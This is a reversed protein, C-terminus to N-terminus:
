KWRLDETLRNALICREIEALRTYTTFDDETLEADVFAASLEEVGSRVNWEPAFAPLKSAIKSFDVRYSRTDPGAADPIVLDASPHVEGVIAAIGRVQYNEASIGVNFAEDHVVERPAELAALFAGCVDQVHVQPRWPTGDSTLVIRNTAVAWATLNNVVIDLRLAPSVGYVTANRMSTPSFGDDALTHLDREVLVKAKGYPTVPAFPATEDVHSGGAAGYLSCSSAFVFREVGARKALRAFDVTAEHNIDYTLSPNLNGLPDNSLAALHVVADVAEVDAVTADRIDRRDADPVGATFSADRYLGLDLTVVDHGARRLYPVMVAGIYGSSGTVLVRM